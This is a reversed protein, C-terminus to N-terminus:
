AIERHGNCKVAAMGCLALRLRWSALELAQSAVHPSGDLKGALREISRSFVLSPWISSSLLPAYALECKM